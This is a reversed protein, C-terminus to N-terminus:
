VVNSSSNTWDAELLVVTFPLDAVLGFVFSADRAMEIERVTAGTNPMMVPFTGLGAMSQLKQLSGNHSAGGVGGRDM